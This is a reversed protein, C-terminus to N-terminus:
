QTGAAFDRRNFFRVLVDHTEPPPSALRSHFTLTEGPSAVSRSPLATWSYLESGNRNRVSFRLRPVEVVRSTTSVIDGKISLVQVGDGTQTDGNVNAFALGRVNVPLGIAAYLSATQPAWRVIDTRWAILGLDVTILALILATYGPLPWRARRRKAQTKRRRAAVTEIDAGASGDAAEGGEDTPALAPSEVVALPEQPPAPDQVPPTESPPASGSAEAILEDVSPEGSTEVAANAEVPASALDQALAAAAAPAAAEEIIEAGAIAGLAEAGAAVWVCHCRACRVSRGKPGLSSPDVRYCTACSPCAILM